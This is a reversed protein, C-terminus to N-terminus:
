ARAGASAAPAARGVRRRGLVLGAGVLGTLGLLLGGGGGGSLGGAADGVSGVIGGEEVGADGKPFQLPEVPEVSSFTDPSSTMRTDVAVGEIEGFIRFTYDGEAMPFFVSEYHGPEGYAPSLELEMTEEGFTVEARLSNSLGEVPAGGHEGGEGEAGAAPSAGPPAVRTVALDLGNKLGVFAPEDLFGIVLTYQGDGVEIEGHASSGLPLLAAFVLAAGCSAAARIFRHM